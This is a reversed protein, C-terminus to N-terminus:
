SSPRGNVWVTTQWDVAGFHLLVRKGKWASPVTFTRSYWLASKEGVTKGVGSLASEVPFPVLIKGDFATPRKAEKPTIAYDWLGNLNQWDERAMQPRPYEPLVNEPKVDRAWQTMIHGKVPTYASSASIGCLCCLASLSLVRIGSRM